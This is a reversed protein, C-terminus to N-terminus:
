GFRTLFDRNIFELRGYIVAWTMIEGCYDEATSLPSCEHSGITQQGRHQQQLRMSSHRAALEGPFKFDRHARQVAVHVREARCANGNKSQAAGAATPLEIFVPPSLNRPKIFSFEPCQQHRLRAHHAIRPKRRRGLARKRFQERRQRIRQPFFCDRNLLPKEDIGGAPAFALSDKWAASRAPRPKARDCATSTTHSFCSRAPAAFRRDAQVRLSSRFMTGPPSCVLPVASMERKEFRPLWVVRDAFRVDQM